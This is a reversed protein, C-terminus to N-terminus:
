VEGQDPLVWAGVAWLQLLMVMVYMYESHLSGIGRYRLSPFIAVVPLPFQARKAGKHM